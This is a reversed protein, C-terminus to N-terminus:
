ADVGTLQALLKTALNKERPLGIRIADTLALMAYLLPDDRVARAVSSALPEVAQGKTNGLAHPWVPVLEGATMVQQRLVPAAMATAIGRTVEGLKTPFVYRIGYVIFECLLKANVNPEGTRLDLRALGSEYSRQLSLSVQSKSIGTSEALSRVSYRSRLFDDYTPADATKVFRTAFDEEISTAAEDDDYQAKWGQWGETRLILQYPEKPQALSLLKLLLLIDQGKM